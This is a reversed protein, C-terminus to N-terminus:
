ETMKNEPRAVYGAKDAYASGGEIIDSFTQIVILYRIKNEM